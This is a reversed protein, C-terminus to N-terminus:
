YQEGDKSRKQATDSPTQGQTRDLCKYPQTGHHLEDTMNKWLASRRYRPVARGQQGCRGIAEPMQKDLQTTSLSGQPGTAGCPNQIALTGLLHRLAPPVATQNTLATLGTRTVFRPTQSRIGQPRPSPGVRNGLGNGSDLLLEKYVTITQPSHNLLGPLRDSESSIYSRM